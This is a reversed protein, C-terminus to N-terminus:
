VLPFAGFAWTGAYALAVFVCLCVKGVSPSNHIIVAPVDGFAKLAGFQGFHEELLAETLEDGQTYTHTHAQTHTHTHTHAQTHTHRHAISQATPM